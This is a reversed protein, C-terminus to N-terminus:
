ESSFDYEATAVNDAGGHHDASLKIFLCKSGIDMKLFFDKAYGNEKSVKKYAM